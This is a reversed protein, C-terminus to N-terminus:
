DGLPLETKYIVQKLAFSSRINTVGPVRTLRDLLFREYADLVEGADYRGLRALTRALTLAMESDDTPQGALNGWTGGHPSAGYKEDKTNMQWLGNAGYTHGAAGSLLATWFAFRQVEAGSYHLIGEYSMEDIM